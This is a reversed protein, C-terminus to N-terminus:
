QYSIDVKHTIPFIHIYPVYKLIALLGIQPPIEKIHNYSLDLTTLTSAMTWLVPDINVWARSTLDLYGKTDPSPVLEDDAEM